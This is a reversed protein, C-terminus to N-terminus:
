KIFEGKINRMSFGSKKLQQPHRFHQILKTSDATIIIRVSTTTDAFLTKMEALLEEFRKQNAQIM